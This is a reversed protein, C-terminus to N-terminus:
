FFKPGWEVHSCHKPKKLMGKPLLGWLKGCLYDLMSEVELVGSKLIVKTSKFVISLQNTSGQCPYDPWPDQFLHSGISTKQPPQQATPILLKSGWWSWSIELHLAPLESRGQDGADWLRTHRCNSKESFRIMKLQMSLCFNQPSRAKLFPHLGCKFLFHRQLAFVNQTM